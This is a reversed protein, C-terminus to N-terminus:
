IQASAQSPKWSFEFLQVIIIALMYQTSVFHLDLVLQELFMDRGFLYARGWRWSMVSFYGLVLWSGNLFFESLSTDSESIPNM